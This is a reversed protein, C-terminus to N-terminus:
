HTKSLDRRYFNSFNSFTQIKLSQIGKKAVQQHKSFIHEFCINKANILVIKKVGVKKKAFVLLLNKAKKTSNKEKMILKQNKQRDM